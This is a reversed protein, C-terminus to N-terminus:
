YIILTQPLADQLRSVAADSVDAPYLYIEKLNSLHALENLGRDTIDTKGLVLVKLQTLDHLQKLGQDTIRTDYLWLQELTAFHKLCDLDQDSTPSRSLNIFTIAGQTDVDVGAGLLQLTQAQKSWQEAQTGCGLLTLGWALVLWRLIAFDVGIADNGNAGRFLATKASRCALRMETGTSVHM